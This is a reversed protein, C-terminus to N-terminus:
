VEGLHNDFRPKLLTGVKLTIRKKLDIGNQVYKKKAKLFLKNQSDKGLHRITYRCDELSRFGHNHKDVLRTRLFNHFRYPSFSVSVISPFM